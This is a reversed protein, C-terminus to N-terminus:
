LSLEVLIETNKSIMQGAPVSQRKVAGSGKLKVRYGRNELLFLVDPAAMGYLDPMLGKSLQLDPNKNSARVNKEERQITVYGDQNFDPATKVDVFLGHLAIMTPLGLGNKVVPIETLPNSLGNVPKHIDMETAFVRDAIAKFIPGAVAGGYYVDGSPANVIVICSYKPNDAPFYGVFSAQYTTKQGDKVYIGNNAVQATGTKGAIPYISSALTKATGNKVVGELLKQAKKITEPKAIAPNLIEPPFIKITKGKERVEKVFMPKVMVGDNAVANYLTLTQLPTITSEYGISIWPLSVGSWGKEGSTRIHSKGEGPISIGLPEGFRLAQLGDTFKRPNKAYASNIAKSIGVNSSEWFAEELTVINEKPTHSDHMVRNFFQHQGGELNLKDSLNILGHDMGVLLSALKFTSGPERADGIAYNYDEVYVGSDRRTLNAIARIEGTKVEMLVVCGYKANHQILTNRLANEAVDQINIDITTIIDRGQQPEIENDGNLPKWVGGAIKQMLRKGRTGTLVSDFAGELGVKVKGSDSVYGITRAALMRFPLERHNSQVYMFGGKFHGARFLPLKKLEQLEKYSVDRALQEYRSGRRRAKMLTSRYEPASHEGLVRELGISLDTASDEFESDDIAPNALPDIAVEYYPLSTALLSGDYAFINGRLAEIYQEKEMFDKAEAAWHEKQVTQIYFVRALVAMAFVCCLIYVLYVRKLIAKQEEM